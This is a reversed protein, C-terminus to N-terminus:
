GREDVIVGAQELMRQVMELTDEPPIEKIVEKTDDNVIKISIRNIKDHYKMKISTHSEKLSENITDVAARIKKVNNEDGVDGKKDESPQVEATNEKLDASTERIIRKSEKEIKGVNQTLASPMSNVEGIESM